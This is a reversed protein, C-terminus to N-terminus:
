ADERPTMHEATIVGHQWALAVAHVTNLARLKSRIRLLEECTFSLSLYVRQAIDRQEHGNAVLRLIVRQRETLDHHSV